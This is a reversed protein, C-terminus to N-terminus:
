RVPHIGFERECYEEAVIRGATTQEHLEDYNEKLLHILHKDVHGRQGMREMLTVVQPEELPKRYPREEALATFIDAAIIIRSGINIRKSDLHFPYGSGDLKEHHFGAWEALHQSFGSRILISYTYYSHRRIIAFEYRNLKAPKELISNPVAMKGLDHLDGVLHMLEVESESFGVVKSISAAATSVRLSHTATYRSRFDTINRILEAIDRFSSQGIHTNRCPAGELLIDMLRPSVLDLWFDERAAVSRFADVLQPHFDSGASTKIESIIERDQHLIYKGRDIAREVTDALFLIQSQFALPTENAQEWDVWPKHHHRVIRSPAGFLPSRKLVKEGWVCHLDIDETYTGQHISVKDDPTLAGIDHLLAAIFVPELDASPVKAAEGIKWAIFATRLQHQTLQPSVLDLADSFSLLFRLLDVSLEQYM